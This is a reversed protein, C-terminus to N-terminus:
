TGSDCGVKKMPMSRTHVSTHKESSLCEKSMAPLKINEVGVTAVIFSDICSVSCCPSSATMTTPKVIGTLIM